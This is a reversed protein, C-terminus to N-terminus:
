LVPTGGASAGRGTRIRGRERSSSRPWSCRSPSPDASRAAISVPSGCEAIRYPGGPEPFVVRALIMAVAHRPANSSNEATFAPRASTRATISRACSRRLAASSGM